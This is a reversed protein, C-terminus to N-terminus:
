KVSSTMATSGGLTCLFAWSCRSATSSIWEELWSKKLHTLSPTFTMMQVDHWNFHLNYVSFKMTWCTNIKQVNMKPKLFTKTKTTVFIARHSTKLGSRQLGDQALRHLVHQSIFCQPVSATDPWLWVSQKQFGKKWILITAYVERFFFGVPQYGRVVLTIRRGSWTPMTYHWCESQRWTVATWHSGAHVPHKRRLEM